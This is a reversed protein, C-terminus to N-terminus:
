GGKFIRYLSSSKRATEGDAPTTTQEGRRQTSADRPREVKRPPLAQFQAEVLTVQRLRLAMPVADYMGPDQDHPMAQILMRPYSTTRTQVTMLEGRRYMGSLQAYDGAPDGLMLSLEIETPLMVRHDTITSGDELPHDLVRAEEIVLAKLPRAGPALQRFDDNFLGTVDVARSSPGAIM